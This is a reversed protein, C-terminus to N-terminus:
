SYRKETEKKSNSSGKWCFSRDKKNHREGSTVIEGGLQWDTGNIKNEKMTVRGEENDKM